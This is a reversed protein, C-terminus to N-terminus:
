NIVCLSFVREVTNFAQLALSNTTGLVKVCHVVSSIPYKTCLIFVFIAFM